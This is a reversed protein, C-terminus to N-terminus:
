YIRPGIAAVSPLRAPAGRDSRGFAGAASNLLRLEQLHLLQLPLDRPGRLWLERQEESRQSRDNETEKKQM